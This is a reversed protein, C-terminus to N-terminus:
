SQEDVDKAKSKKSSFIKKSFCLLCDLIKDQRAAYIYARISQVCIRIYISVNLGDPNKRGELHRTGVGPSVDLVGHATHTHTHTYVWMCGCVSGGADFFLASV